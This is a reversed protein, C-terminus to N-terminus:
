TPKRNQKKVKEKFNIELFSISRLNIKVKVQTNM